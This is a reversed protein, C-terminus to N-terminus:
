PPCTRQPRQPFSFESALRKQPMHPAASTPFVSAAPGATRAVTVGPSFFASDPDPPPDSSSRGGAREAVSAVGTVEGLVLLKDVPLEEALLEEVALEEGLLIGGIVPGDNKPNFV